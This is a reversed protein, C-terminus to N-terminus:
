NIRHNEHLKRRVGADGAELPKNLTLHLTNPEPGENIPSSTVKPERSENEVVM